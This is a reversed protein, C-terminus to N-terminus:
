ILYFLPLIIGFLRDFNNLPDNWFEVPADWFLKAVGLTIACIVLLLLCGCGIFLGKRRKPKEEEEEAPPVFPPPTVSRATTPPRSPASPEPEPSFPPPPAYAPEPEPEPEFSGFPPPPSAALEPLPAYAAGPAVITDLAEDVSAQYMLTVTEGLGIVDGNSLVHTGTIRAGNVFTGNTSGLDEITYNEGQRRLRAHQRSVEPDNITIDGLAERGIVMLEQTLAFTKEPQPGRRVVLGFAGSIEM